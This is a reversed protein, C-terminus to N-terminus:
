VYRLEQPKDDRKKKFVPENGEESFDAKSPDVTYDLTLM